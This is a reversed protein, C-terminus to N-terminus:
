SCVAGLAELRADHADLREIGLADDHQVPQRRALANDHLAGFEQVLDALPAAM